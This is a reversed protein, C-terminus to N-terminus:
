RCAMQRLPSGCLFAASSYRAPRPSSTRLKEAVTPLEGPDILLVPKAGGNAKGADSKAAGGEAKKQAQETQAYDRAAQKWGPHNWADDARNM